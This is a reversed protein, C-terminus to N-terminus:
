YSDVGMKNFQYGSTQKNPIRLILGRICQGGILNALRKAADYNIEAAALHVGPYLLQLAQLNLGINAGLELCSSIRGAQKLAKSFFSLNSALFTSPALSVQGSHRKRQRM